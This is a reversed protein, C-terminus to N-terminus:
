FNVDIGVAITRPNPFSGRDFGRSFLGDSIFDPDYGRYKSITLLNQGSLYINAREFFPNKMKFTYGLRVNQLKIFDGKEIFRNSDRNNGNPDGIVPRPIDTNTNTPTWYNLEDTHHNSYDGLMLSRYTDNFVKHGASGQWFFSFDWNKYDCSFNLGYNIKPITVGQFTRDDGNIINNSDDTNKFMLDGVSAGTQSAHNTIDAQSQFIGEVEYAYLEGISRGVETRSAAGTIPLDTTGIKLVKNKLTGLNASINYNFKGKRGSYSVEFEFGTNQVDGANTIISAPFSGTSFPLPVAALLDTSKKKFYEGTFQLANDFLGVELAINTTETDEWKIKPDKLNVATTGPALTNGFAYSAFPNITAAYGYVGITNNGLQGYGGRLKLTSVWKPLTIFKENHIKWAGSLSFYDGTNNEPSFLSSKDRRFNMTLLYRDDYGYNIRSLYSISTVTSNYEGGSIADAYEIQSIEKPQYGVGRSWHNYYDNREQIWGVLAGLNHKGFTNNYTLLNDIITKTSNSNTVDLSAEENTTIYYWGLDSPPIFNRSHGDFRDFNASIKYKLGKVIDIEGWLNGIFRNRDNISQNINNLGIVNLTIARQTLNDAGGYGGLRNEDYVPMTPIAQLLHIMSSTGALYVNFNDKKSQTYGVKAGYKLRGKEGNLNITSSLRNYDQPTKIYSSNNFYDINMSYALEKTGGSLTASHNEVIGTRYAENQWNTNVNSIYNPNTPDNGPVVSLGANKEAASTITQYGIRDTLSLKKPVTQFGIMSKVNVEMKGVQGKKTTVIVVGNAGRVGYIAAASADKLVQISEIEGTAFDFPSDLIMGDVVFLPNNNNFSTIGRIKINVLGGPEGSSQVTVGAAKGQLMKAVDYTITKKAEKTNVVSVAGTLDSKKQSGYGVVVLEDVNVTNEKMSVNITTKNGIAVEQTSMGIYSYTLTQVSKPVTLIYNGDIDTITGTSTGNAKVSVGPMTSGTDDTVRGKITTNSQAYGSVALLSSLVLIFSMAFIRMMGSHKKFNPAQDAGHKLTKYMSKQNKHTEM